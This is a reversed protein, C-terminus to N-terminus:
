GRSISLAGTRMEASIEPPSSLSQLVVCYRETLRLGISVAPWAGGCAHPVAPRSCWPYPGARAAASGSLAAWLPPGM